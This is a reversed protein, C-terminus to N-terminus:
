SVSSQELELKGLVMRRRETLIEMTYVYIIGYCSSTFLGTIFRLMTWQWFTDAYSMAYNTASNLFVLAIGTRLRGFIDGLFQLSKNIWVNESQYCMHQFHSSFHRFCGIGVGVFFLTTSVTLLYERECFLNFEDVITMTMSDPREFRNSWVLNVLCTM